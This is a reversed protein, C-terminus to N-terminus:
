VPECISCWSTTCVADDWKLSYHSEGNNAFMCKNNEHDVWGSVYPLDFPVKVGNSIYKYDSASNTRKVGIALWEGETIVERSALLVNNNTTLTQPEFLRGGSPFKGACNAQAESHALKVNHFYYCRGDVIRYNSGLESCNLLGPITEVVDQHAANEKLEDIADRFEYVTTNMEHIQDEITQYTELDDQQCVLESVTITMKETEYQHPGYSLQSIPL